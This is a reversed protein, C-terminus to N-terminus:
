AYFLIKQAAHQHHPQSLQQYPQSFQQRSQPFPYVSERGQRSHHQAQALSAGMSEVVGGIWPWPGYGSEVNIHGALGADHFVLNWRRAWAYAHQLKMWPDNQSGILLGPVNL